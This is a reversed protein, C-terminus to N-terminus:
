QGVIVASAPPLWKGSNLDANLAFLIEGEDRIEIPETSMNITVVVSSRRYRLVRDSPIDSLFELGGSAHLDPTDRRLKILTRVVHLLSQPNQEHREVTKEPGQNAFTPLYTNPNTSFGAQPKTSWQMPTRAGTRTYGGEHTPLDQYDMAIEDGYYIFPIGPMTLLFTFYLRLEADTLYHSIRPNDHNGTILSFHGAGVSARYHPLYQDIFDSAARSSVASFFANDARVLLNYGNGPWDLYFDMDFGAELSQSPNGWEAVFVAGPHTKKVNTFIEQWARITASKDPDHKVLSDAMDVRFGDVGKDLWFTIVKAMEERNRQAGQSSTPQQWPTKPTAFGYNLAPQSYFFNLVYCGNRPAVGAVFPLSDADGFWSNTWIYRDDEPTKDPSSSQIFWPHEDSTHGPVLDLLLRIGAAHLADILASLDNTTGYRPAIQYYDRVDYGADKFPSDFIPNLWIASIGLQQLYPIRDIIGRLDGIGDGNSDAFSQPYIQYFTAKELWSKGSHTEM